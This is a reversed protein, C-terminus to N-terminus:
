GVAVQRRGVLRRRVLGGLGLGVAAIGLVTTPEPIPSFQLTLTNADSLYLRTNQAGLFNGFVRYESAPFEYGAALNPFGTNRSFGGVSTMVVITYTEDARLDTGVIEFDLFRNTTGPFNFNVKGAGTLAVRGANATGAGTRDAAVIFRPADTGDATINVFGNTSSVTLVGPGGTGARLRGGATVVLQGANNGSPVLTLTGVGQLLGKNTFAGGRIDLEPTQLTTGAALTYDGGGSTTIPVTVVVTGGQIDMLGSNAITISRGFTTTNAGQKVFTGNITVSGGAATADPPVISFDGSATTNTVTKGAPIVIGSRGNMKIQGADWTGGGNFTMTLAVGSAINGVLDRTGTGPLSAPGNINVNQLFAFQGAEWTFTGGSGGVSLSNNVGGQGGGWIEGGAQVTLNNPSTVGLVTLRGNAVSLTNPSLTANSPLDLGGFNLQVTATSAINVTVAPAVTTTNGTSAFVGTGLVTLQGGNLTQGAGFELTAGDAVKFTGTHVGAFGLVRLKGAQVDITGTNNVKTNAFTTTNTGQKVFTGKINFVSGVSGNGDLSFNGSATTNTITAGAPLEFNQTFSDVILRGADWTGGGNLQTLGRSEITRTGTGTLNVPGNLPFTASTNGPGHLEGSSWDVTSNIVATGGVVLPNAWLQGGAIQISTGSASTFSGNALIRGGSLKLTGAQLSFVGSASANLDDTGTRELTANAANVTVSTISRPDSVTVTYPDPPALNILVSNGSGPISGGSWNSGVNWNGGAPNNWSFTQAAAPGATAFLAACAGIAFITRPM